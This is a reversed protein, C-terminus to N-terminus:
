QVNVILTGSYKSKMQTESYKSKIQTRGHKKKRWIRASPEALVHLRPDAVEGLDVPERRYLGVAEEHVALREAQHVHVHETLPHWEPSLHEELVELQPQGHGHVM